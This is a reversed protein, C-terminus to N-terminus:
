GVGMGADLILPSPGWIPGFVPCIAAKRGVCTARIYSNTASLRDCPPMWGLSGAMGPRFIGPSIGPLGM